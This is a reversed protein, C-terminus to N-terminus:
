GYGYRGTHDLSHFQKDTTQFQRKRDIDRDFKAKILQFRDFDHCSHVRVRFIPPLMKVNSSLLRM